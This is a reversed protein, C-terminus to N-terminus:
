RSARSSARASTSRASAWCNRTPTWGGNRGSGEFARATLIFDTYGVLLIGLAPLLLRNLETLDPLVPRPLGAPIEGIVALGHDKLSFAASIATGLM